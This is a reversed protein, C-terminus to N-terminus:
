RSGGAGRRVMSDRGSQPDGRNTRDQGGARGARRSGCCIRARNMPQVVPSSVAPLRGATRRGAQHAAIMSPSASISLGGGQLNIGKRDSLSGGNEVECAIRRGHIAVVRMSILGDNLLLVDGPKVDDPLGAYSVGVRQSTGPTAPDEADLTFRAGPKLEISGTAFKEIRIKPGQLDFLIAVERGLEAAVERAMRARQAQTEVPAHSMNLRLV